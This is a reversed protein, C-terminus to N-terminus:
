NQVTQYAALDVILTVDPHRHLASAPFDESVDQSLLKQIADAKKEGSAILVIKKAKMISQIGMTIAKTPVEEISTFFRANAERTSDALEVVHTESEFSSGPENFGIHGNHGIGLLQIDPPGVEEILAEYRACEEKLDVAQGDPIHAKRTDMNVHKFLNEQMFSRYSQPHSKPVGVYEDLNLTTVNSFDMEGSEYRRILEQYTGLPTGGTALGLVCESEPKNRQQLLDAAKQSMEQEDKTVIINM